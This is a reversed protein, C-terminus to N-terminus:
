TKEGDPKESSLRGSIWILLPMALAWELAVAPITLYLSQELQLAGLKEGALYAVPGLVAGLLAAMVLRGRLWDLASRLGAALNIWLALMWYTSPEGIPTSAQNSFGLIGSLALASDFLYGTIVAALIFLLENRYDSTTFVYVCVWSLVSVVGLEPNGAAASLVCAFWGAQFFVLCLIRGTAQHALSM